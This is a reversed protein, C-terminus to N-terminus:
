SRRPRRRATMRIWCNWKGGTNYDCRRAGRARNNGSDVIYLNGKVDCKLDTAAFLKAKEVPVGEGAFGGGYTDQAPGYGAITHIKGDPTVKRIRSNGGESIYVSSDPAVAVAM